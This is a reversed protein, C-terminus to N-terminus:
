AARSLRPEGFLFGQGLEIDFAMLAKLSRESEIKEVILDVGCREFAARLDRLDIQSQGSRFTALLQAADVKVYRFKLAALRTPEIAIESVQDLSFRFGLSALRALASAHQLVLTDLDAQHFEFVLKPALDRTEAMFEVFATFFVKDALSHRSINCFFATGALRRRTRRVLQVCRFLLLNDIASILGEREALKLYQEPLLVAGRADRVRSFCEFHQGRRAPLSVIPQMYVDVRDQRLAERLVTLIESESLDMAVLAPRGGHEVAPEPEAALAPSPTAGDRGLREILGQLIRVEAVMANREAHDGRARRQGAELAKLVEAQAAKLRAIHEAVQRARMEHVIALHAVGALTVLALGLAV